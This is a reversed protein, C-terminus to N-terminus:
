ASYHATLDSYWIINSQVPRCIELVPSKRGAYGAKRGALCKQAWQSCTESMGYSEASQFIPIM